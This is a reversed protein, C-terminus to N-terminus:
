SSISFSTLTCVPSLRKCASSTALFMPLTTFLWHVSRERQGAQKHRSTMYQCYYKLQPSFHCKYHPQLYFHTFIVRRWMLIIVIKDFTGLTFAKQWFFIFCFMCGMMRFHHTQPPKDCQSLSLQCKILLSALRWNREFQQLWYLKLPFHWCCDSSARGQFLLPKGAHCNGIM